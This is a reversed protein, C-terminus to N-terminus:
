ARVGSRLAANAVIASAVEDLPLVEVAGGRKVAEGPMGWVVSTAEDQAITHGGSQRVELLGNAGDDGMGTLLAAVCRGGVTNVVSRYLVDVSPIHRNVRPGDILQARLEGNVDKVALHADGPSVYCHGPLLPEGDTAHHVTLACVSELRQAFPASFAGPIHQSYVIPPLERPLRELVERTAETGGTSAGIAILRPAGRGGPVAHAPRAALVEDVSLRRAVVAEGDAQSATARANTRELRDVRVGAAGKVKAILEEEYDRLSNTVDNQPKALFDVAGLELARLTTDAGEETLTSLMVVPMPRLRMLNSLFTLGDMRPMEVDLTLVDPDLKKIKERAIYPDAASGVVEIGPDQDLIATVIQRILASDDVVLVRVPTRSQPM